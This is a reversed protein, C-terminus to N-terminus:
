KKDKFSQIRSCVQCRNITLRTDCVKGSHVGIFHVVGSASYYQRGFSRHQWAADTSMTLAPMEGYEETEYTGDGAEKSLKIEEAVADKMSQKTVTKIARGVEEETREYPHQWMYKMGLTSFARSMSFWSSGMQHAMLVSQKNIDYAAHAKGHTIGDKRPLHIPILHGSPLKRSRLGCTASLYTALGKTEVEVELKFKSNERALNNRYEPTKTYSHWMKTAINEQSLKELVQTSDNPHNDLETLIREKFKTNFWSTFNRITCLIHQHTCKRCALHEEANAKFNETGILVTEDTEEKITPPIPCPTPADQGCPLCLPTTLASHSIITPNASFDWQGNNNEERQKREEHGSTFRGGVGGDALEKCSRNVSGTPLVFLNPKSRTSIM